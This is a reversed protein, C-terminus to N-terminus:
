EKISGKVMKITFGLNHSQRFMNCCLLINLPLARKIAFHTVPVDKWCTWTTIMTESEWTSVPLLPINRFVGTGLAILDQWVQVGQLDVDHVADVLGGDNSADVLFHSRYCRLRLRGRSKGTGRRLDRLGCNWSFSMFIWQLIPVSEM